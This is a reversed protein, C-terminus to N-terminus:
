CQLPKSRARQPPAQTGCGLTVPHLGIAEVLQRCAWSKGSGSFGHTILLAPQRAQTYHEALTLYNACHHLCDARETADLPQSLRLANVKARVMARYVKYFNLVPLAAYDGSEALWLNLLRHAWAPKGRDELDMLLFACDSATDIWRLEESFEIGDFLTIEGDILAINGLHMDGHCARIHGTQKRQLLEAHLRSYEQQTWNELVSLRELLPHGHLHTRLSIFNQQMPALVSAPLGFHSDAPAHEAQQHFHAVRTALMDMQELPLLDAALLRDLQQSPDFQRMKVAYEVVNAATNDTASGLRYSGDVQLM